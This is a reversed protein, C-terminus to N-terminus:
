AAAASTLTCPQWQAAWARAAERGLLELDADISDDASVSSSISGRLAEVEAAAARAADAAAAAEAEARAAALEAAAM